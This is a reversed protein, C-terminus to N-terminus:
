GAQLSLSITGNYAFFSALFVNGRGPLSSGERACPFFDGQPPPSAFSFM